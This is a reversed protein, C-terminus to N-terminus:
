LLLLSIFPFYNTNKALASLASSRLARNLCFAFHFHISKLVCKKTDISINIKGPLSGAEMKNAITVSSGFLCYRPMKQGVVGAM